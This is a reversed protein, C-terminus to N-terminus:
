SIAASGTTGTVKWHGGVKEVVQTHWYGGLLSMWLHVGVRVKNGRGKIPGVVVLAGEKRAHTGNPAIAGKRTAVFHIPPLKKLQRRLAAKEASTLRSTPVMEKVNLMPDSIGPVPGDLVYLTHILGSRGSSTDKLVLQKIAAAYISISRGDVRAAGRPSEAPPVAKPSESTTCGSVFLLVSVAAAFTTLRTLGTKARM